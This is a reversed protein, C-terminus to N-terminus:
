KNRRLARECFRRIRVRASSIQSRVTAASSGLIQATEETSLGEIDRLVIASREKFPLSDLADRLIRRREETEIAAEIGTVPSPAPERDSPDDGLPTLKLRFRRRAMDHCVNVTVRYLWPRLDSEARIGPLNRYLKLFVEQSADKADELRHLLRMATVLVLRQHLGMLQEFAERDRAQARLVLGRTEAFLGEEAGAPDDEVMQGSDVAAVATLLSGYRM